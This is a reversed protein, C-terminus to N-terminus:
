RATQMGGRWCASTCQASSDPHCLGQINKPRITTWAPVLPSTRCRRQPPPSPSSPSANSASMSTGELALTPDDADRVELPFRGRVGLAGLGGGCVPLSAFVPRASIHSQQTKLPVRCVSSRRLCARLCFPIFYLLPFCLCIRFAFLFCLYTRSTTHARFPNCRYGRIIGPTELTLFTRFTATTRFLPLLPIRLSDSPVAKDGEATAPGLDLLGEAPTPM